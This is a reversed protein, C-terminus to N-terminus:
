EEGKTKTKVPEILMIYAPKDSRSRHKQGMNVLFGEGENLEVVQGQLDIFIRGKIVYFFEDENQHVHWKYAGDIKAVRIATDNIFAIDFPQWIEDLNKIAKKFDIKGM